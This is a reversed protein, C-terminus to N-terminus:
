ARAHHVRRIAGALWDADGIRKGAVHPQAKQDTTWAPPAETPLTIM